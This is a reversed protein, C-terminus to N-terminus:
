LSHIPPPLRCYLGGGHWKGGVRALFYFCESPNRTKSISIRIVSLTYYNNRYSRANNCKVQERDGTVATPWIAYQSYQGDSRGCTARLGGRTLPETRMTPPAASSATLTVTM